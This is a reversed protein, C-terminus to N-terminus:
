LLTVNGGKTKNMVVKMKVAMLILLPLNEGRLQVLQHKGIFVIAAQLDLGIKLINSNGTSNKPQKIM